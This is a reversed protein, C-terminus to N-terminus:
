IARMKAQTLLGHAPQQIMSGGEYHYNNEFSEYLVNNVNRQLDLSEESSEPDQDVSKRFATTLKQRGHDGAWFEGRLGVHHFSLRM